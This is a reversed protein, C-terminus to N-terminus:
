GNRGCPGAPARQQARGRHAAGLQREPQNSGQMTPLLVACWSQSTSSVPLAGLSGLGCLLGPGPRGCGARGGLAASM